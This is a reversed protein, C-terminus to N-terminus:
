SPSLVLITVFTFTHTMLKSFKYGQQVPSLRLFLSNLTSLLFSLNNTVYKSLIPVSAPCFTPFLVPDQQYIQHHSQPQRSLQQFNDHYFILSQYCPHYSTLIQSTMRTSSTWYIDKMFFM